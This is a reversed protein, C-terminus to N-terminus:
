SSIGRPWWISFLVVWGLIVAQNDVQINVHCDKIEWTPAELIKALAWKGKVKINEHVVENEWFDGLV